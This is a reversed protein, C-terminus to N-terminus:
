SFLPRIALPCTYSTSFYGYTTLMTIFTKRFEMAAFATQVPENIECHNTNVAACQVSPTVIDSVFTDNNTIRENNTYLLFNIKVFIVTINVPIGRYYYRFLGACIDVCFTHDSFMKTLCRSTSLLYATHVWYVVVTCV